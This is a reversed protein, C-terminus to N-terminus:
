TNSYKQVIYFFISINLVFCALGEFFSCFHKPVLAALTINISYDTNGIIIRTPAETRNLAYCLSPPGDHILFELIRCSM